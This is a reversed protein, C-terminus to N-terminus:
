ARRRAISFILPEQNRRTIFVVIKLIHIPLNFTCCFIGVMKNNKDDYIEKVVTLYEERDAVSKVTFKTSEQFMAWDIKNKFLLVLWKLEEPSGLVNKKLYQRKALEEEGKASIKEQWIELALLVPIIDYLMPNDEVTIETIKEQM